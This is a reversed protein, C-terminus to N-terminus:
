ASMCNYHRPTHLQWSLMWTQAQETSLLLYSYDVLLPMPLPPHLQHECTFLWHLPQSNECTATMLYKYRRVKLSLSDADELALLRRILPFTATRWVDVNPDNSENTIGRLTVSLPQM